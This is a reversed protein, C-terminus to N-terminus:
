AVARYADSFAVWADAIAAACRHLCLGRAQCPCSLASTFYTRKGDRSTIRYMGPRDLPRLKGAKILAKADARQEKSWPVIALEIAEDRRDELELKQCRLSYGRAVSAAATLPRGCGSRRCRTVPAPDPKSWGTGKVAEGGFQEALELARTEDFINPGGAVVKGDRLIWWAREADERSMCYLGKVLEGQPDRWAILWCGLEDDGGFLAEVANVALGESVSEYGEGDALVFLATGPTGLTTLKGHLSRSLDGYVEIGALIEATTSPALTATLELAGALTACKGRDRGMGRTGTGREMVTFRDRGRPKEWIVFRTDSLEHCTYDDSAPLSKAVTVVQFEPTKSM